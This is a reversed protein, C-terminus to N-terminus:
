SIPATSGAMWSLPLAELLEVSAALTVQPKSSSCPGSQSGTVYCRLLLLLLRCGSATSLIYARLEEIVAM